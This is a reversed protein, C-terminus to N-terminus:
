NGAEYKSLVLKVDRPSGLIVPCRDHISGPVLDLMRQVKGQFLGTSGIGGATEVILAMPFGEYLVRLKGKASKKDAPYIYIGGYLITRHVDSVMSGVYRASYGEAKFQAVADLIPADWNCSNGENCSYIKKGGGPPIKVATHTHIFEGLSPDLSFREVGADNSRFCLVLETAAGYMCYGAVVIDTGTRLIDAESSDKSDPHLKEYVAFITGTSVNCDINSSGDLPDFAVCFRGAKEEPVIIAEDREESVLVACAGSNILASVFIEDSLVDLKKQDDGTSNVEGALGFLGAIGAKACARSTAKCALGLQAMLVTLEKDSTNEMLWRGLNMFDQEASVDEVSGRTTRAEPM